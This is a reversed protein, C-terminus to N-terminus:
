FPSSRRADLTVLALAAAANAGFGSAVCALQQRCDTCVLWVVHGSRAHHIQATSKLSLRVVKVTNGHAGRGHRICPEMTAVAGQKNIGAAAAAM